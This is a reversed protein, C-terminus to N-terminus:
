YANKDTFGRFITLFIIKMDLWLSWERMYELDFEIRKRMKHITNTEGRWGNIQAWGTIGPKVLHRLMYGPIITRYQENHAVAHPRPGVISMTGQLVNFFQPLEDLSTKRLFEGIKTYRSDGRTAQTVTNGDECVTMSRFKWVRIKEGKHGYRTQKFLVPGKSTLKVAIAIGLLIPSILTLIISGVLLDEIRKVFAHDASFPSDYICLVPNDAIEIYKSKLLNTTFFDPLLRVPTASDSLQDLLRLMRKRAEVPLAIYIQDWEGNRASQIIDDFDGLNEYHNLVDKHIRDDRDDYFGAVNYGFEPKSELDKAFKLGNQTMGVIAVTRNNVGMRRLRSFIQRLIFRAFILLLPTIVLWAVLVVRSFQESTKTVFAIFVLSMFTLLWALSVRIAEDSLPRGSWSTYIDTFRGVLGFIVIASLGAVLYGEINYFNTYPAGLFLIFLIVLIDTIRYILESSIHRDDM